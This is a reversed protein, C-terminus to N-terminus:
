TKLLRSIKVFIFCSLTLLLFHLAHSISYEKVFSRNSDMQLPLKKVPLHHGGAAFTTLHNCECVVVSATTADTVQLYSHFLVVYSKCFRM